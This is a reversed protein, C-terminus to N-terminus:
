GVYRPYIDIINGSLECGDDSVNGRQAGNDIPFGHVNQSTNTSERGNKLGLSKALLSAMGGKGNSSPGARASNEMWESKFGTWGRLMMESAAKEPEGFTLFQRVLERAARPTLKSKKAQRHAILDKATAESLVEQLIELASPARKNDENSSLIYSQSQSQCAMPMRNANRNANGNANKGWRVAHAKESALARKKYAEEAKALEADIRKHKWGDDFFPKLASRLAHWECQSQCLTIRALREDDDPLSGTHWYHAILLMYGGHEDRSLHATDSKYDAWYMPMWARSM